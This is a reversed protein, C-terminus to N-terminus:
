QPTLQLFTNKDGPGVEREAEKSGHNFVKGGDHGEAVGNRYKVLWPSFGRFHSGFYVM